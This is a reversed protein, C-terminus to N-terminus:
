ILLVGILILVILLPAVFRLLLLWVRGTWGTVIGAVRLAENSNWTWGVFITILLGSAPLLISSVVTDITQLINMGFLGSARWVGFGIASPIGAAFACVGVVIATRRRSWKLHRMLVACPVELM